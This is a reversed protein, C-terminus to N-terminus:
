MEEPLYRMKGILKAQEFKKANVNQKKKEDDIQVAFVSFCGAYISVGTIMVCSAIVYEANAIPLINGFGTGHMTSVSYLMADLYKQWDAVNELGFKYYGAM